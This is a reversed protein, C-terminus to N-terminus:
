KILRKEIKNIIEKILIVIGVSLVAGAIVDQPFHFGTYIVSFGVLFSIGVLPLGYKPKEILLPLSLGFALMTTTSPFSSSSTQWLEIVRASLIQYPRPQSVLNKILDGIQYCIFGSALSILGLKWYDKLFVMLLPVLGLLFFLAVFVNICLFDLYSSAFGKNILLFFQNDGVILNIIFLSLLIGLVLGLHKNFWLKSM